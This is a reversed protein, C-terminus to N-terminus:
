GRVWLSFAIIFGVFAPVQSGLIIWAGVKTKLKTAGGISGVLFGIYGLALSGLLIYQPLTM